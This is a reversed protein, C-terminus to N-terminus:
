ICFHKVVTLPWYLFSVKKGKRKKEIFGGLTASPQVEDMKICSFFHLVTLGDSRSCRIVILPWLTSVIDLDWIEIAPEMSGVAIFNGIVIFIVEHSWDDCFSPPLFLSDIIYNALLCFYTRNGLFFFPFHLYVLSFFFLVLFIIIGVVYISAVMLVTCIIVDFLYYLM